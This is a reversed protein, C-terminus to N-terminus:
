GYVTKLRLPTARVPLASTELVLHQPNSDRRGQWEVRRGVAPESMTKSWKGLRDIIRTSHGQALTALRLAESM